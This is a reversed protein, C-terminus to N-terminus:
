EGGERHVVHEVAARLGLFAEPRRRQGDIVQGDIVLFKGAATKEVSGAAPTGAVRITYVLPRQQPIWTVTVQQGDILYIKSM